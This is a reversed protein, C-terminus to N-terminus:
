MDSDFEMNRIRYMAGSDAFDDGPGDGTPKRHMNVIVVKDAFKIGAKLLDSKKRPDGVMWYLNPFVQLPSYEEESPPRSCLILVTKFEEESVQAGRLTCLLRFLDFSGTAILIHHQMRIASKLQTQFRSQIPHKLLRCLPVRADAYPPEPQAVTLEGPEINPFGTGQQLESADTASFPARHLSRAPLAYEGQGSLELSTQFDEETMSLKGSFVYISTLDRIVDKTILVNLYGVPEEYHSYPSTQQLLNVMLTGAGPYLCNYGILIQKLSEVCVVANTTKEQYTETEPLLNYVFLPTLPAYDDFAWARLTNHEDEERYDPANRDPIIFAAAAYQLQVRKMDEVDLASGRLYAVRDRFLAQNLLFKVGPSPSNRALFVIKMQDDVLERNLFTNLVDMIRPGDFVGCIVVFPRKGRSYSGGGSRQLWFTEVTSSILGPLIILSVLILVIVVVRGAISTPAIDGYGVTAVTIIIFYLAEILSLHKAHEPNSQLNEESYQFACMAVYILVILTAILVCLREKYISFKFIEWRFRLRLFDKFRSTVTFARFFYPIDATSPRPHSKYQRTHRYSERIPKYSTIRHKRPWLAMSTLNHGSAKQVAQVEDADPDLSEMLVDRRRRREGSLDITTTMTVTSGFDLGTQSLSTDFRSLELDTSSSRVHDSPPGPTNRTQASQSALSYASSSLLASASSENHPFDREQHPRSIDIFHEEVLNPESRYRSLSQNQKLTRRSTFATREPNSQDKGEWLTMTLLAELKKRASNKRFGARGVGKLKKEQRGSGVQTSVKILGKGKRFSPADAESRDATHTSICIDLSPSSLRQQFPSLPANADGETGQHPRSSPRSLVKRRVPTTVMETTRQQPFLRVAASKRRFRKEAKASPPVPPPRTRVPSSSMIGYTKSGPPVPFALEPESTVADPYWRSDPTRDKIEAPARVLDEDDDIEYALALSPLPLSRLEVGERATSKEESPNKARAASSSLTMFSLRKKSKLKQLPPPTFDSEGDSTLDIVELGSAESPLRAKFAVDKNGAQMNTTAKPGGLDLGIGLGSSVEPYLTQDLFMPINEHPSFWNDNTALSQSGLLDHLHTSPPYPRHAVEDRKATAQAKQGDTTRSVGPAAGSGSPLHSEKTGWPTLNGINPLEDFPNSAMPGSISLPSSPHALPIPSPNLGMVDQAAGPVWVSLAKLFAEGNLDDGVGHDRPIHTTAGTNGPMMDVVGTPEFLLGSGPEVEADLGRWDPTFAEPESVIPCIAGESHSLVRETAKADRVKRRIYEKEVWPSSIEGISRLEGWAAKILPVPHHNFIIQSLTCFQRQFRAAGASLYEREHLVLQKFPLLNWRKVPNDSQSRQCMIVFRVKIQTVRRIPLYHAKIAGWDAPGHRVLGLHLLSIEAPLYENLLHRATSVILPVLQQNLEGCSAMVDKVHQPLRAEGFKFPRNCKFKIVSRRADKAAAEVSKRWEMYRVKTQKPIQKRYNERFDVAEPATTDVPSAILQQVAGISSVQFVSAPLGQATADDRFKALNGIQKEWYKAESSEVGNLTSAIAHAQVLLQVTDRIQKRLRDLQDVSFGDRATTVFAPKTARSIFSRRIEDGPNFQMEKFLGNLEERGVQIGSDNPITQSSSSATQMTSQLADIDNALEEDLEVESDDSLLDVGAQEEGAPQGVSGSAPIVPPQSVASDNFLPFLTNMELPQSASVSNPPESESTLMSLLSNMEQLNEFSSDHPGPAGAFVFSTLAPAEAPQGPPATVSGMTPLSNDGLLWDDNAGLGAPTPLSSTSPSPMSQKMPEACDALSNTISPPVDTRADSESSHAAQKASETPRSFADTADDITSDEPSSVAVTKDSIQSRAGRVIRKKPTKSGRGDANSRGCGDIFESLGGSRAPTGRTEQGKRRRSKRQM